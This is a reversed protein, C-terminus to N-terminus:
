LKNLSAVHRSAVSLVVKVCLMIPLVGEEELLVMYSLIYSFFLSSCLLYFSCAIIIDMVGDQPITVVALTL